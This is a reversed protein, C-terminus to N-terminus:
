RKEGEHNNMTTSCSVQHVRQKLFDYYKWIAPPTNKRFFEEDDIHNRIDSACININGRNVVLTDIGILDEKRFWRGREKDDGCVFLDPNGFDAHICELYYKGWLIDDAPKERDFLPKIILRGEAIADAFVEHIMEEREKYTLPNQPTGTNNCSGLYLGVTDAINLATKIISYHGNQLPQFRGCVIALTYNKSM